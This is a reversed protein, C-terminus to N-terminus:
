FLQGESSRAVVQPMYRALFGTHFRVDAVSFYGFAAIDGVRYPKEGAAYQRYMDRTHEGVDSKERMWAETEPTRPRRRNIANQIERLEDLEPQTLCLSIDRQRVNGGETIELIGYFSSGGMFGGGWANVRFWAGFKKLVWGPENSGKRRSYGNEKFWPGLATRIERYVDVTRAYGTM